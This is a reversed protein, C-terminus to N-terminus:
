SQDRPGGDSLSVAPSTPVAGTPRRVRRRSIRNVGSSGPSPRAPATGDCRTFWGTSGLTYRRRRTTTPAPTARASTPIPPAAIAAVDPPSPASRSPVTSIVVVVVVTAGVVVVVVVTGGVVVVVLVVVVVVVVDVVTGGGGVITTSPTGTQGGYSVSGGSSPIAASVPSGASSASVCRGIRATFISLKLRARGCHPSSPASAIMSSFTSPTVRNTPNNWEFRGSRTPGTRDARVPSRSMKAPIFRGM